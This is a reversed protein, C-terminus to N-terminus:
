VSGGETDEAPLHQVAPRVGAGVTVLRAFEAEAMSAALMAAAKVQDRTVQRSLLGGMVQDAIVDGIREIPKM